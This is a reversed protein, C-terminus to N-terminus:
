TLVSGNGPRHSRSRRQDLHVFVRHLWRDNGDYRPSFAVRGHVVVRNDVFIMDGPRLVADVRVATLAERLRTLSREAGDDLARTAHFDVCIDPDDPAGTLVPHPSSLDASHFSPPAETIFRPEQLVTRDAQDLLPFARRVSALQTGVQDEHAPRLCLLGVFDPRHPHFANETHFELRVSGGNSQSTALTPVPVVNQVLAGHKEDRYAIVTGLESGLLVAVTAAVTAAREVSDPVTPTAPLTEAALPLNSITLTGESGPDHRFARVAGSLRHPLRCSEERARAQWDPDDVLAPGPAVRRVLAELERREGGNLELVSIEKVHDTNTSAMISTM